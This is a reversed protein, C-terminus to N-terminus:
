DADDATSLSDGLTYIRHGAIALSAYGRGAGTTEWALPPGGEPWAELLDTDTAVATRDTGRFTPWDGGDVSALGAAWGLTLMALSAPFSASRM